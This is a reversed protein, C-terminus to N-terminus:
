WFRRQVGLIIIVKLGCERLSELRELGEPVLSPTREKNLFTAEVVQLREVDSETTVSGANRRSTVVEFLADSEPLTNANVTLKLNTLHPLLPPRSQEFGLRKFLHPTCIFDDQCYGPTERLHLSSLRPLHQLLRVVQEVDFPCNDISLSHLPCSSRRLFEIVASLEEEEVSGYSNVVNSMGLFQLNPFTFRQFFEGFVPSQRRVANVTLSRVKTMIRIDRGTESWYGHVEVTLNMLNQCLPIIYSLPPTGSCSVLVLSTLQSWPITPLCDTPRDICFDLDAVRLAPCPGLFDLISLFEGLDRHPYELFQITRLNQLKGRLSYFIPQQLFVSPIALSVSAWQAARRCLEDLTPDMHAINDVLHPVNFSLALPAHQARQLFLDTIRRCRDGEEVSENRHIEYKLTSWLNPLFTTLGRWLTCVRSLVVPQPTANFKKRVVIDIGDECCVQFIHQLLEEPLKRIPALLSRGAEVYQNMWQRKGELLTIALKLRHLEADIRTVDDEFRGLCVLVDEPRPTPTTHRLLDQLEEADDTSQKPVGLTTSNM